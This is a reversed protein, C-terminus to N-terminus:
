RHTSSAPARDRMVLWWVVATSTLIAIADALLQDWQVHHRPSGGYVSVIPQSWIEWYWSGFFCAALLAWPLWRTALPSELCTGTALLLAVVYCTGEIAGIQALARLMAHAPSLLYWSLWSLVVISVLITAMGNWVPRSRVSAALCQLIAVVGFWGVLHELADADFPGLSWRVHLLRMVTGAVVFGIGAACVLVALAGQHARARDRSASTRPAEGNPAANTRRLPTIM